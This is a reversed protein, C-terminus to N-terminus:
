PELDEAVFEAVESLRMPQLAPCRSDPGPLRIDPLSQAMGASAEVDLEVTVPAPDPYRTVGLIPTRDEAVALHRAERVEAVDRAILGSALAAALGGEAEITQFVKWGQRALQDTLAEFAFAGAAPDEVRGVGSEDLLILQTNRALRAARAGPPGLADTFAGLVLADAGGAAGAFGAVTLRLLNTWPDAATLMRRSSRVEIRAPAEVGCAAMIRGWIERAARVKAISILYDADASVGLVLRMFATAIPLEAESMARAYALAAAAMVGLEEAASGGAEHVARGSALFLSAEPYTPALGAAVSAARHLHAEIPGPSEGAEAFAGLPDLHFALRASPADKAAEALWEAALPGLMGADLAVPAAELVVGDLTRRLDERSRVGSAGAHLLLSTCGGALAELAQRNAAAPDAAVIEARVDWDPERRGRPLAGARAPGSAPGYLPAITVGEFTSLALADPSSGKLAREAAKVWPTMGDTSATGTAKTAM